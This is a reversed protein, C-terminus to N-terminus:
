TKKESLDGKKSSQFLLNDDVKKNSYHLLSQKNTGSYSNATNIFNECLTQCIMKILCEKCACLPISTIRTNTYKCEAKYYHPVKTLSLCGICQNDIEIKM